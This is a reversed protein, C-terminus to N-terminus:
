AVMAASSISHLRAAARPHPICLGVDWEVRTRLVPKAELEGIDTVIPEGSQLGFCYGDGLAVCYISSATTGGGTASENFAISQFLDSNADAVLIPIDNWKTIKRGLQDTEYTVYGLVATNRAGATIIRRLAKSMILVRNGNDDVQDVLEDLHLARLPDGGSTSGGGVAKNQVLQAGGIRRKLGDFQKNNSSSDGNIIADAINHALSKIKMAEQASRQDIGMTRLIFKDVDIDGGAMVLAETQPNLIGVSESFGENLGRFGVGPLTQEQNYKYANGTITQYPMAGLVETTRGYIEVVTQRFVDGSMRKAAELLTLAM